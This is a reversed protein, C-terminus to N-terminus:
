RQSGWQEIAASVAGGLAQQNQDIKSGRRKPEGILKPTYRHLRIGYDPHGRWHGEVWTGNRMEYGRRYHLAQHWGEESRDTKATVRKNITWTVNFWAVPVRSAGLKWKARDMDKSVPPGHDVIRPTNLLSITTMALVALKLLTVEAARHMNKTKMYNSLPGHRPVEISHAQVRAGEDSDYLPIIAIRDHRGEVSGIMISWGSTELVILQAPMVFDCIIEDLTTEALPYNHDATKFVVDRITDSIMFHQANELQAVGKVIRNKRFHDYAKLTLPGM